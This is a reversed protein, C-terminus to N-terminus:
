EKKMRESSLDNSEIWKKLDETMEPKKTGPFLKQVLEEFNVKVMALKTFGVTRVIRDSLTIVRQDL